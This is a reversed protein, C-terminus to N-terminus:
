HAYVEYHLHLEALARRAQSFAQFEEVSSIISIHAIERRLENAFWERYILSHLLGYVYYLVDENTLTSLQNKGLRTRVEALFGDSGGDHRVWGAGQANGFLTSTGECGEM